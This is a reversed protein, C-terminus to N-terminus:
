ALSIGNKVCQEIREGMQRITVGHYKRLHVSFLSRATFEKKCHDCSYPKEGTHLNKHDALSTPAVFSKDCGPWDCHYNKTRITQKYNKEHVNNVHKRLSNRNKMIKKCKPCIFEGTAASIDLMPIDLFPKSENRIQTTTSRYNHNEKAEKSMNVFLEVSTSSSARSKNQEIDYGTMDNHGDNTIELNPFTVINLQNFLNKHKERIHRALRNYPLPMACETCEVAHKGHSQMEHRRVQSTLRHEYNCISCKKLGKKGGM